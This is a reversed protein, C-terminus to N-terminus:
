AYPQADTFIAMLASKEDASGNAIVDSVSSYETNEAIWSAVESKLATLEGFDIENSENYLEDKSLEGSLYREYENFIKLSLKLFSETREDGNYDNIMSVLNEKEDFFLCEARDIFQTVMKTFRNIQRGWVKEILEDESLKPKEIGVEKLKQEIIGEFESRSTNESVYTEILGEMDMLQKSQVKQPVAFDDIWQKKFFWRKWEMKEKYETISESGHLVVVPETWM